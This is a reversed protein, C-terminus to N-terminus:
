NWLLLFIRNNYVANDNDRQGQIIKECIEGQTFLDIALACCYKEDMPGNFVQQVIDYIVIHLFNNWQFTFFMDLLTSLVKHEIFQIKLYDSVEPEFVTDTDDHVVTIESIDTCHKEDSLNNQFPINLTDYNNEFNYLNEDSKVNEKSLDSNNDNLDDVLTNNTKSEKSSLENSYNDFNDEPIPSKIKTINGLFLDEINSNKDLFHEKNELVENSDIYKFSLDEWSFVQETNFIEYTELCESIDSNREIKMNQQKEKTENFLEDKKIIKSDNKPKNLLIMNSCHLLEAYLECIRLREIGLPKIKDFAIEIEDKPTRPDLLIKQFDHIHSALIKLMNDLYIPGKEGSTNKAFSIEFFSVRNYDSFIFKTSM